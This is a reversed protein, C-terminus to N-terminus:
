AKRFYGHSYPGGYLTVPKEPKDVFFAECAMRMGPNADIGDVTIGPLHYDMLVVIAGSRLRPYIANLAHTVLRAHFAPDGGVGLDIHAFRIHAPLEAPLTRLVDGAHIHPLPLSLQKFNREFASRIDMKGSLEHTFLDYVHFEDALGLPALISAIVASTYGVYCGVEVFAGGPGCTLGANILHHLNVAQERTMMDVHPDLAPRLRVPARLKALVRNITRPLPGLQLREMGPWRIEQFHRDIM